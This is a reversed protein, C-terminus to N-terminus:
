DVTEADVAQAPAETSPEISPAVAEAVGDAFGEHLEMAEPSPLDTRLQDLVAHGALTSVVAAQIGSAPRKVPPLMGGLMTVRPLGGKLELSLVRCEVKDGQQFRIASGEDSLAMYQFDLHARFRGHRVIIGYATLREVKATLWKGVRPPAQRKQNRRGKVSKKEPEKFAIAGGNYSANLPQAQAETAPEGNVVEAAVETVQAGDSVQGETPDIFQEQTNM